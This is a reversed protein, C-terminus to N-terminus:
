AAGGPLARDLQQFIDRCRLYDAEVPVVGGFHHTEVRHVLQGLPSRVDAPLQPHRLIERSTLSRPWRVEGRRAVVVLARLLLAHIAEAHQGRRALEEPDPLKLRSFDVSGDGAGEEDGDGDFARSSYLFNFVVMALIIIGLVLIAQSFFDPLVVRRGKNSVEIVKVEPLEVQYRPGLLAETKEHVGPRLTPEASAAAELWREDQEDLAPATGPLGLVVLLLFPLIWRSPAAAESSAITAPDRTGPWGGSFHRAM